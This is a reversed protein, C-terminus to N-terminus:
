GSNSFSSERKNIAFFFYFALNQLNIDQSFSLHLSEIIFEKSRLLNLNIPSILRKPPIAPM